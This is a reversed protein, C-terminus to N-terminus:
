LIPKINSVNPCLRLSLKQVSKNYNAIQNLVDDTIALNYSLDLIM